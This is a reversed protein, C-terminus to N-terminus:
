DKRFRKNLYRRASEVNNFKRASEDNGSLYFENPFFELVSSNRHQVLDGILLPCGFVYLRVCASQSYEDDNIDQFKEISVLRMVEGAECKRAGSDARVGM